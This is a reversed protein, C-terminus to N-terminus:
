NQKDHSRAYTLADSGHMKSMDLKVPASEGDTGPQAGTGSQGTGEFAPAYDPLDKMSEVLDDVNFFNGEGDKVRNHGHEDIVRASYRGDQQEM